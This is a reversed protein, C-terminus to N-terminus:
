LFATHGQKYLVRTIEKLTEGSRYLDDFLLVKKNAMSDDKIRFAGHLEKYRLNVDDIVKLVSTKKIKEVFDPLVPISSLRGIEYALEIVPQLKRDMNSPPVPVIASLYPTIRRKELFAHVSQALYSLQTRDSRYKFQFLAEGIKPRETIYSGNGTSISSVTHFDLAM